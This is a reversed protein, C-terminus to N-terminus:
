HGGVIQLLFRAGEHLDLFYGEDPPGRTMRHCVSFLDGRRGPNKVSQWVGTADERANQEM